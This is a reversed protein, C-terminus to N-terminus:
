FPYHWQAYPMAGSEFWVDITYPLRRYTQGSKRFTIEDTSPRHLDLYSLDRGTLEELEAIGGVCIRDSGDDSSWIPLPTGWYREPLIALENNNELWKGVRGTKVREPVLNIKQNNRLLKDKVATTRIYWSTKAYFLLPSDDRWCFPYAHRIREVRYMLGR